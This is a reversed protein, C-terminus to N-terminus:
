LTPDWTVAGFAAALETVSMHTPEEATLEFGDGARANLEHWPHDPDSDPDEAYGDTTEASDYASLESQLDDLGVQSPIFYLGEDLAARIAALEGLAPVGALVFTRTAKYNDADRYLYSVRTNPTRTAILRHWPERAFSVAHDFASDLADLLTEARQEAADSDAASFSLAVAPEYFGEHAAGPLDLARLQADAPLAARARLLIAQLTEAGALEGRIAHESFTLEVPLTWAPQDLRALAQQYSLGDRAALERAASQRARNRPARHRKPTRDSMVTLDKRPSGM